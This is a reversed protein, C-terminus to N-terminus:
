VLAMYSPQPKHVHSAEGSRAWSAPPAHFMRVMAERPELFLNLKNADLTALESPLATLEM